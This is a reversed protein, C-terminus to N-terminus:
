NFLKILLTKITYKAFWLIHKLIFLLAYYIKMTWIVFLECYYTNCTILILEKKFFICFFDVFILAVACSLLLVFTWFLVAVTICFIFSMVKKLTMLLQKKKHM